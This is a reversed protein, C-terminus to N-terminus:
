ANRLMNETKIKAIITILTTTRLRHDSGIRINIRGLVIM